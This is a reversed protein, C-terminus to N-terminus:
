GSCRMIVETSSYRTYYQLPSKPLSGTAPAPAARNSEGSDKGEATNAPTKVLYACNKKYM